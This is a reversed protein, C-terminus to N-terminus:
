CMPTTSRSRTSRSSRTLATAVVEIGRANSLIESLYKRVVASDDVILVKTKKM